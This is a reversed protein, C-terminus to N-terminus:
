TYIDGVSSREPFFFKDVQLIFIIYIFLWPCFLPKRDADKGLKLFFFMKKDIVLSGERWKWHQFVSRTRQWMTVVNFLSSPTLMPCYLRLNFFERTWRFQDKESHTEVAKTGSQLYTRGELTHNKLRESCRRWFNHKTGAAVTMFLPYWIKTWAM